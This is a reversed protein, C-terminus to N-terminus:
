SRPKGLQGLVISRFIIAKSSQSLLVALYLFGALDPKIHYILLKGQTSPSFVIVNCCCWRAAFREVTLIWSLSLRKSTADKNIATIEPRKVSKFACKVRNLSDKSKKLHPFSIIFSRLKGAKPPVFIFRSPRLRSFCLPSQVLGPRVEPYHSM